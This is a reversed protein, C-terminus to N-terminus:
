RLLMISGRLEQQDGNTLAGFYKIVYTYTGGPLLQSGTGKYTGNWKFDLKNSQYVMEGWRNYIFVQFGEARVFAQFPMVSFTKNIEQDGDPRFVNPLNLEPQCREVVETFDTTICGTAGVIDVSYYGPATVTFTRNTQGPLIIRPTIPTEARYWQWSTGFAAELQFTCSANQPPAQACDRNEVRNCIFRRNPLGGDPNDVFTITESDEATCDGRTAIVRFVGEEDTTLIRGTQGTVLDGDIYWEYTAGPIATAEVTFTTNRCPAIPVIAVSISGYINLTKAPSTFRCGSVTSIATVQFLSGNDATTVLLPNGSPLIPNGDRTWLFTYGGAPNVTIPLTANDVCEDAPLAFDVDADDVTIQVTYTTECFGPANLRVGYTYTPPSAAPQADVTITPADTAPNINPGFWQYSVNSVPTPLIATLTILPCVDFDISADILDDSVVRINQSARCNNSVDTVEITYEGPVPVAATTITAPMSPIAVPGVQLAGTAANLVRYSWPGTGTATVDFDLPTTGCATVPTTPTITISSSNVGVSTSTTCGTVQDAVNVLYTDIALGTVTVNAVPTTGTQTAGTNVGSVTYGFTAGAPATINLEIEGNTAGCVIPNATATFVPRPNVTFVVSDRVRCGTGNPLPDEVEVWYKFTGPATTTVNQTRTNGPNTGVGNIRWEYTLSGPNQADLPTIPTDQCVERDPGLDLVPRNDAITINGSSTCGSANTITLGINRPRDVQITYTTEGTSWLYTLGPTNTPLAQLTLPGNCVTPQQGAPVFTPDPPSAVIVINQTLLVDLGCRNTIRVTVTQPGASSFIHSFSAETSTLGGDYTWLFEDIQDTGNVQFQSPTGECLGTISMSPEPTGEFIEQIFNPLGLTSRGTGLPQSQETLTSLQLTDAAITLTGLFSSGNIAVYITGDPGRQIAGLEANIGASNESGPVLVPNNQFDVYAERLFSESTGHITTIIKRGAFEIGYVQGEDSQLDLRRFNTVVGTSDVFDFLELFNDPPDPLAVALLTGGFKMYGQGMLGQSGTENLRHDSGISSIVPSGIGDGTIEYARFSNNGFEHAVLWRGNSTIRETSRTFLLQNYTVIGGDGNNLDMDREKIDYLSYRLEYTNTGHIEQTTFIYYLTEDGPVPVILASQSSTNQGGIEIPIGGADVIPRDQRDFVHVGDTSFIVQGNRDSIVSVGEPSEIPPTVSGDPDTVLNIAQVPQQNFDLGANDGFYWINARQDTADYERVNVAAYAVCGPTNSDTALVYYYGAEDPTLRDGTDGNSWLYDIDTGGQARVRVSFPGNNCATGVPPPFECRCATTDQPLTLQLQFDTITVPQEVFQSQGNLFATLRVTFPQGSEYTHVPSWDSSSNGDGFTWNLSDAAPLVNPFFSTPYNSCSGETTFSLTFTNNARPLFEPFQRGAFNIPGSFAERTHIVDAAVSDVDTFRGLLFAGGATAQYLHYIATDPALLLGYSRSIPTPTDLVSVLSNSPDANMDFQVVDAQIAPAATQGHISIYLFRGSPSWETDYIAQTPTSPVGSTLVFRDFTIQGTNNNFNLIAVNSNSTQPSVAIKGTAAHYSFNAASIHVGTIDPYTTSNFTTGNILTSTFNDTGNEHTILWFNTGDSHPVTIMAESRQGLAIDFNRTIVNGIPPEPAIENGSATMDVTHVYINGNSTFSATNTFIYYQNPFTPRGSIAVPQNTNPTVNLATGSPMQQHRLDYVVSGDTYFMLDGNIPNSAVASGGNGFPTRKNNLLSPANDSRSFRIGRTNSGFYWNHRSFNSQAVTDAAALLCVFMVVWRLGTSISM